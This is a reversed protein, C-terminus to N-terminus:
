AGVAFKRRRQVGPAARIIAAYPINYSGADMEPVCVGLSISSDAVAEYFGLVAAAATTLATMVTSEWRADDNSDNETFGGLYKRGERKPTDTIFRMLAANAPPLPDGTAAPVFTVPADITGLNGINIWKDIAWLIINAAAEVWELDESLYADIDTYFLELFTSIADLVDDADATGSGDAVFHWVNEILSATPHSFKIAVRIVDGANVQVAM